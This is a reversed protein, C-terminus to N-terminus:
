YWGKINFGFGNSFTENENQIFIIEKDIKKFRFKEAVSYQFYDEALVVHITGNGSEKIEKIFHKLRLTYDIGNITNFYSFYGCNIGVIILCVCFLKKNIKKSYDSAMMLFGFMYWFCPVYRAWWNTPTIITIFLLLCVPFIIKRYNILKEKRISFYTIVLLLFCFEVFLVGFGGIRLDNYPSVTMRLLKLPNFPLTELNYELFFLSFFRQVPNMYRFGEFTMQDLMQSSIIDIVGKGYLPYFPHEFNMTNTVYPNYGTFVIGVLLVSFGALVLSTLQKYKGAVLHKFIYGVLIFGCVFGTFKINISFISVAIIILLDRGDQIKEYDMCAFILIIIMMGLAGDVYFTFLQALVVPNAVFVISILLTKLKNKQFKGTYKCAYIFVIVFFIINYSKGLEINGFSSLFISAFIETFKPYHNNWFFMEEPLSEYFPNWGEIVKIAATQHYSLGDWSYDYIMSSLILSLFLMSYCTLLCILTKNKQRYILCSALIHVFLTLFIIYVDFGTIHIALFINKELYLIFVSLILLFPQEKLIDKITVSYLQKNLIIGLISPLQKRFIIAAILVAIFLFCIISIFSADMLLIHANDTYNLPRGMLKEVVVIIFNRIGSFLLLICGIFILVLIVIIVKYMIPLGTIKGKETKKM